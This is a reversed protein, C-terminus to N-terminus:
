RLRESLLKMEIAPSIRDYLINYMADTIPMKVGYRQNIEKICQTAYYGEAIMNMELMANKVSYGKGIMTGFARNRSFQSYCTVLLDGLYASTDAKRKSPYTKDLFRRIELQANSVLVALFNDGYGLGHAVGAAIAFINKLVAAYETGYIDTGTITKIYYSEFFAAVEKAMSRRKCSFTLYSLRSLAVEEAHCPGSIVGINDFPISYKQNFFEAITLNDGPIIGKIATVIMKDSISETLPELWVKLFASPVVFVIVDSERVLTNIDDLPRINEMDFRVSSIYTPNHGHQLIFNRIETERVYWNVVNGNEHLIKTIATAWSGSGVVGIRKQKQKQTM